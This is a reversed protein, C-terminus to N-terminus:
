KGFCELHWRKAGIQTATGNIPLGCEECINSYTRAPVPDVNGDPAGGNQLRRLEAEYIKALTDDPEPEAMNPNREREAIAESREQYYRAIGPTRDAFALMLAEARDPSKVGRKRAEDKSEIQVQGRPNIEYRISALQMISVDDDLGSVEGNQFRERLSWYLQAKLNRYRDPFDTAEGVNIGNINIFGFSEFDTAFYAGVGACDFNIEALRDKFARLFAIM